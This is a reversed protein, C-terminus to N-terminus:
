GGAATRNRESHAGQGSQGGQGRRDAQAPIKVPQQVTSARLTELRRNYDEEIAAAESAKLRAGNRRLEFATRQVRQEAIASLEGLEAGIRRDEAAIRAEIKKRNLEASARVLAAVQEDYPTQGSTFKVLVPLCDILVFFIRLVWASAGVVASSGSLEGLADFREILGISASTPPLTQQVRKAIAADLAQQQGTTDASEAAQLAAIRGEDATIDANQQAIPHSKQYDEYVQQDQQCAPGDGIGGTTVGPVKVGNCEDNVTGSYTALQASESTVTAQLSSVTNRLQALETQDQAAPTTVALRFGACSSGNASSPQAGSIPNCAKLQGQLQGIASARDTTVRAVIASQFVQLVLPEAIIVGFVVAVLLRFVMTSIKASMRRGSMGAVLWRDLCLVFTAWFLALPVFWGRVGGAIESLAFFMSIGGISATGLMVCALATYRPRETPLHELVSENVGTLVRVRRALRPGPAAARAWDPEIPPEPVADARADAPDPLAEECEGLEEFEASFAHDGAPLDAEAM